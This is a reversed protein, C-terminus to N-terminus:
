QNEITISNIIIENVPWDDLGNKTTTEVSAISRVIDIGEIVVGFVSYQDDLYSQPGDCIFFQSTASNPDGARAM